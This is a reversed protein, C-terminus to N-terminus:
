EIADAHSAAEFFQERDGSLVSLQAFHQVFNYAANLRKTRVAELFTQADVVESSTSLGESFSIKRLKVNEQAMALSSELASYEEISSLMEQYTREVLLKLDEIAQAKLHNVKQHTLKAVEIEQTRDNRTLLNISVVVGAFWNPMSKMLLSNDRYINYNGFGSVTPLFDAKKVDVLADSQKAKADFVRLAAYNRTTEQTYHHQTSPTTLMFLCSCPDEKTHTLLEYAHFTLEKQHKAKVLEVEADKLKAKANLLEVKALQGREYMKRANEFHLKYARYGDKRTEYLRKAVVSGYYYKVLQLFKEDSKMSAMAQVEQVKAGYIKQAADIRGGTYLPWLLQLDAMFIDKKSLDISNPFSPIIMSVDSTDLDIPKDMHTYSGTLSINPLYMSRASNQKLKAVQVDDYSAHLAKNNKKVSQWAEEITIDACVVSVVVGLLLVIKM